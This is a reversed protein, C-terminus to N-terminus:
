RFRAFTLFLADDLYVTEGLDAQVRFDWNRSEWKEGLVERYVVRDGPQEPNWIVALFAGGEDMALLVDYWTGARFTLNSPLRKQGLDQRGLTLYSMPTPGNFFGFARWSASDYKGTDYTGATFSFSCGFASNRDTKYRISIGQRPGFPPRTSVMGGMSKLGHLNLMGGELQDSTPHWITWGNLADFRDVRIVRADALYDLVTDPPTVVPTPTPRPTTTPPIITQTPEITPTYGGLASQFPPLGWLALAGGALILLFAVLPVAVRRGSRAQSPSVPGPAPMPQDPPRSPAGKVQSTTKPTASAPVLEQELARLLGLTSPWRKAPDKELCQLVAAEWAPSIAPNLRRPPLPQANVQEWRVKEGTSGGTRANEGTFPREGTLMEYLVVGLAYVDSAPTPNEGRVQEPSMYAPTGMGVMTATAADTMRSVGFDALMVRGHADLLVNGPKVDAHVYGESHAYHLAQCLERTIELVRAAQMPGNAEFILQKLSKGDVYDMLIFTHEGDQELGYFRVINPHQLKALTQAERKFRRLFTRDLALDSHLFKAALRTSRRLDWVKYTEAMGGRGIFEDVRYRGALTKSLLDAM